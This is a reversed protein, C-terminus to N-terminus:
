ETLESTVGLDTLVATLDVAADACSEALTLAGGCCTDLGYDNLVAGAEPQLELVQNVTTSPGIRAASPTTMAHTYGAVLHLM